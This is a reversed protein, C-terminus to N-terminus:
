EHGKEERQKPGRGGGVGGAARRDDGQIEGPEILGGPGAAITRGYVTRM